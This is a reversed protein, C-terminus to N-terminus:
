DENLNVWKPQTAFTEGGYVGQTISIGKGGSNITKLSQIIESNESASLTFLQNELEQRATM